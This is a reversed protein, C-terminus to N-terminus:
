AKAKPFDPLPPSVESSPLEIASEILQNVSIWADGETEQLKKAAVAKEVVKEVNVLFFSSSPQVAVQTGKYGLASAIQDWRYIASGPPVTFPSRAQAFAHTPSGKRRLRSFLGAMAFGDLFATITANFL